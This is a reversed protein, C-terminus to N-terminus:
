NENLYERLRNPYDTILGDVGMEILRKMDASENVTWPIIKIGKEHAALIMEGTLYEFHCSFIDPQFSLTALDGEFTGEEGEEHWILLATSVTSDLRHLVELTRVDFSQITVYELIGLSKIEKYLM